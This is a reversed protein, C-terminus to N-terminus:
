AGAGLDRWDRGCDACAFAAIHASFADDVGFDGSRGGSGKCAVGFRGM